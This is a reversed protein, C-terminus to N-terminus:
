NGVHSELSLTHGSCIQLSPSRLYAQASPLCRLHADMFAVAAIKVCEVAQPDLKFRLFRSAARGSVGGLGHDGDALVVLYKHLSPSSADYVTRRWLHPDTHKAFDM